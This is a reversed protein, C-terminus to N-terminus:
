AWLYHNNGSKAIPSLAASVELNEPLSLLAGHPLPSSGSSLEPLNLTPDDAM